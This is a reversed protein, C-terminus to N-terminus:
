EHVDHDFYSAKNVGPDVLAADYTDPVPALSETQRAMYGAVSGPAAAATLDAMYGAASGNIQDSNLHAIYEAATRFGKVIRGMHLLKGDKREYWRIYLYKNGKRSDTREEFYEGPKLGDKVPEKADQEIVRIDDVLAALESRNLNGLLKQIENYSNVTKKSV